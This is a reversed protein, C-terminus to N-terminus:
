PLILTMHVAFTVVTNLTSPFTSLLIIRFASSYFLLPLLSLNILLRIVFVIQLPSFHLVVLFLLFITYLSWTTLSLVSTRIICLNSYISVGRKNYIFYQYLLIVLFYIDPTTSLARLMSVNM